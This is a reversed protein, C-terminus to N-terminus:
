ESDDNVFESDLAAKVVETLVNLSTAALPYCAQGIDSDSQVHQVEKMFSYVNHLFTDEEPIFHLPRTARVIELIQFIIQFTPVKFM